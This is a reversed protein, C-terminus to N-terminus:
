IEADKFYERKVVVPCFGMAAYMYKPTGSPDAGIVVAGSGHKRCDDVCHHILATALGRHRFNPHTFLDELLGMGNPCSWSSCYAVPEGSVYALWYRVPPSKARKLRMKNRSGEETFSIEGNLTDDERRDLEWLRAYADWDSADTVLRIDCIEPQTLLSNELVLFLEDSRRYDELVLRAELLNSESGLDFRLHPIGVFELETQSLLRTVEEPTSASVETVLNADRIDPAARNRIFTAACDYFCENGLALYRSQVELTQRALDIM